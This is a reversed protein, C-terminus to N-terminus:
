RKNKVMFCWSVIRCIQTIVLIRCMLDCKEDVLKLEVSAVIMEITDRMNRLFITWSITILCTQHENLICVEEIQNNMRMRCLIIIEESFFTNDQLKTQSLPTSIGALSSAIYLPDNM